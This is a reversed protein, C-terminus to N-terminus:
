PPIAATGAVAGVALLFAPHVKWQILVLLALSAFAFARWSHLTGSALLMATSLVLGIM